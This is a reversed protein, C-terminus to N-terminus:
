FCETVKCTSRVATELNRAAGKSRAVDESRVVGDSRARCSKIMVRRGGDSVFNGYRCM